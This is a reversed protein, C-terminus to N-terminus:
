FVGNLQSNGFPIIWNLPYDGKQTDMHRTPLNGLLFEYIKITNFRPNITHYQLCFSIADSVKM